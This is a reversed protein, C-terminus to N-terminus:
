ALMRGLRDYIEMQDVPDLDLIEAWVSSFASSPPTNTEEIEPILELRKKAIQASTMSNHRMNNPIQTFVYQSLKYKILSNRISVHSFGLRRSRARLSDIPFKLCDDVILDKTIKALSCIGYLRMAEVISLVPLGLRNSRDLLSCDSHNIVDALLTTKDIM